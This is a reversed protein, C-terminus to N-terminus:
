REAKKKIALTKREGLLREQLKLRSVPIANIEGSSCDFCYYDSYWQRDKGTVHFAIEGKGIVAHCSSCSHEKNVHVFKFEPAVALPENGL